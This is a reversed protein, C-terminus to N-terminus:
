QGQGRAIDQFEQYQEPSYLSPAGSAIQKSIYARAAANKVQTLVKNRIGVPDRVLISKIESSATNNITSELIAMKNPFDLTKGDAGVITDDQIFSKVVDGMMAKGKNSAAVNDITKALPQGSLTTTGKWGKADIWSAVFADQVVQVVANAKINASMEQAEKGKAVQFNTMLQKDDKMYKSIIAKTDMNIVQEVIRSVKTKTPDQPDLVNVSPNLAVDQTVLLKLSDARIKSDPHTLLGPASETDFQSMLKGVANTTAWKAAVERDKFDNGTSGNLIQSNVLVQKPVSDVILQQRDENNMQKMLMHSILDKSSKYQLLLPDSSIAINAKSSAAALAQARVAVANVVQVSQAPDIHKLMSAQSWKQISAEAEAVGAEMMAQKRLMGVRVASEKDINAIVQMTAIGKEEGNLTSLDRLAKEVDFFGAADKMGKNADYIENVTQAIPAAPRTLKPVQVPASVVTNGTQPDKILTANKTSLITNDAPISGIVKRGAGALNQYERVVDNTIVRSETQQVNAAMKTNATRVEAEMQLQNGQNGLESTLLALAQDEEKPQGM